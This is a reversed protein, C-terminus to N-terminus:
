RALPCSNDLPFFDLIMGTLYIVLSSVAVANHHIGNFGYEQEVYSPARLVSSTIGQRRSFEWCRTAM